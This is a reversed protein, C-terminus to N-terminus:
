DVEVSDAAQAFQASGGLPDPDAGEVGRGAGVAPGFLEGRARAKVFDRRSRAKVPRSDYKPPFAVRKIATHRAPAATTPKSGSGAMREGSLDGM